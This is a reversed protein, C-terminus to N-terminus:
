GGASARRIADVDGGSLVVRGDETNYILDVNAGADAIRRLASGLTGPQSPLPGIVVVDRDARVEMGAAELAQRAGAADDVLVHLIGESGAPFGCGGQINIGARGLAEAADALTGPRNVLVVTLDRAM